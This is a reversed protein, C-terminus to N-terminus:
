LSTSLIEIQEPTLKDPYAVKFIITLNGVQKNKGIMGLNPITKITNNQIITGDKHQLNFSKGNIHKITFDTLVFIM